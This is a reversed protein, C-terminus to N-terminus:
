LYFIEFVGLFETAHNLFQEVIMSADDRGYGSAEVFAFSVDVYTRHSILINNNNNNNKLRIMHVSKEIMQETRTEANSHEALM